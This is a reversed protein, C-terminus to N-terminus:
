AAQVLSITPTPTNLAAGVGTQIYSCSQEEAIELTLAM